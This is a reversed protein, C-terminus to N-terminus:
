DIGKGGGGTAAAEKSCIANAALAYIGSAPSPPPNRFFNNQLFVRGDIM